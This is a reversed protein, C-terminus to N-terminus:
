RRVFASDWAEEMISLKESIDNFVGINELLAFEQQLNTDLMYPGDTNVTWKVERKTFTQLHRKLHEQDRIAGTSLNSSPCIELTIGREKIIGMVLESHAAAIGHGIRNPNLKHIAKVIADVGTHETEGTHITVGLRNTSAYKALEAYEDLRKADNEM